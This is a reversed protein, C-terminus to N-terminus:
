SVREATWSGSLGEGTFSGPQNGMGFVTGRLVYFEWDYYVLWLSNSAATWTGNYGREDTFVGSVKDPGSITIRFPEPAAVSGDGYSLTMKWVGRIDIVRVDLSYSDGYMIISGSGESRIRNNLLAEVTEQANQPKYDFTVTTFEKFVHRGAEPTGTVGEGLSVNLVFDPAVGCGSLWALAALGAWAWRRKNSITNIGLDMDYAGKLEFFIEAKGFTRIGPNTEHRLVNRIPARYMM